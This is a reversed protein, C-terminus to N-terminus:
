FVKKKIFFFNVKAFYNEIFNLLIKKFKDKDLTFLAYYVEQAESSIEFNSKKGAEVIQSLLDLTLVDQLLESKIIIRIIHGVFSTM